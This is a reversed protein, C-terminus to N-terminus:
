YPVAFAADLWNDDGVLSRMADGVAPLLAGEDAGHQLLSNLQAVFQKLPIPLDNHVHRFKQSCTSSAIM